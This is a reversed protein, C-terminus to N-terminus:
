TFAETEWESWQDVHRPEKEPIQGGFTPALPRLRSAGYNGLKSFINRFNKLTIGYYWHRYNDEGVNKPTQFHYLFLVWFCQVVSPKSMHSDNSKLTSSSSAAFFRNKKHFPSHVNTTREYPSPDFLGLFQMSESETVRRAGYWLPFLPTFQFM